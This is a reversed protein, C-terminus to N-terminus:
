VVNGEIRCTVPSDERSLYGPLWALLQRAGLYNCQSNGSRPRSIFQHCRFTDTGLNLLNILPLIAQSEIRTAPRKKLPLEGSGVEKANRSGSDNKLLQPKRIFTVGI